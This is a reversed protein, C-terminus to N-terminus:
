GGLIERLLIPIILTPALKKFGLKLTGLVAAGKKLLAITLAIEPGNLSFRSFAYAGTLECKIKNFYSLRGLANISVGHTGLGGLNLHLSNTGGIGFGAGWGNINVDLGVSYNWLKWWQGNGPLGITLNIPRDSTTTVIGSATEHLFQYDWTHYTKTQFDIGVNNALWNGARRATNGIWRFAQRLFKNGGPDINNIPDNGCYAYLNLGTTGLLSLYEHSDANVFRMIEPDYYRSKLYYLRIDTDWYYGRYRLPNLVGIHHEQGFLVVGTASNYIEVGAANFVRHGGWADYEYRAEIANSGAQRIETVNGLVDRELMFLQGAQTGRFM